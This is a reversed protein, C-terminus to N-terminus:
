PTFALGSTGWLGGREQGGIVLIRGGAAAAAFGERAGPLMPQVSWRGSAPDYSEAVRSSVVPGGIVFLRGGLAVAQASDRETPMAALTTWTDTGARYRRLTAVVGPSLTLSRYGGVVYLDDGIAAVAPRLVVGGYSAGTRWTARAPDYVHVHLDSTGPCDVVALQGGALAAGGCPNSFTPLTGPMASWLRTAPDMRLLAAAASASGRRGIAYLRGGSAGILETISVDTAEPASWAATAPDFVQLFTSTGTAADTGFVYVKGGLEAAAPSRPARPMAPLPAWPPGTFLSGDDGVRSSKILEVGGTVHHVTTFGGGSYMASTSTRMGIPGVGALHYESASYSEQAETCITEGIEPYFHCGGGSRSRSVVWAPVTRYDGAFRGLSATATLEPPFFVFFGAGKWGGAGDARFVTSYTSGDRTGLLWPGDAALYNWIPKFVSTDGSLVLPYATRGGLARPAGLTVRYSGSRSTSTTGSSSGTETRNWWDFQWYDGAQLIVQGGSPIHFSGVNSFGSEGDANRARVAVYLATGAPLVGALSTVTGADLSGIVDANPYPAYYLTYGTAGAVGGWDLSVRQGSVEVRLAPAQPPAARAAPALAALTCVLVLALRMRRAGGQLDSDLLM